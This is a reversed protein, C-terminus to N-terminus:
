QEGLFYDITSLIGQHLSWRPHWNTKETFLNSNGAYSRKEIRSLEYDPDYNISAVHGLRECVCDRALSFAETVTVPCGGSILFAGGSLSDIEKAAILLSTLVDDIFIYDRIEEGSGFITVAQRNICKQIVTNLVGRGRNRSVAGPGYVNPLRLTATKLLTQNGYYKLITEAILKHFDYFTVPRDETNENITQDAPIGVQTVTGSFIVTAGLNEEKLYDCLQSIASVNACFDQHPHETSYTVNTQASLFFVIDPAFPLTSWGENPDFQHSLVGNSFSGFNDNSRSFRSSLVLLCNTPELISSLARGIFGSAGTILVKKGQLFNLM